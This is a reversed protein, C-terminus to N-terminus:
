CALTHTEDFEALGACARIMEPDNIRKAIWEGPHVKGDDFIRREALLPLWEAEPLLEGLLHAADDTVFCRCANM